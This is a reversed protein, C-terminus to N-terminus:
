RYMALKCLKVFSKNKVLLLEELIKNVFRVLKEVEVRRITNKAGM